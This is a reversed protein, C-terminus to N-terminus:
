VYLLEDRDSYNLLLRRDGRKCFEVVLEDLNNQLEGAEEREITLLSLSTLKEQWYTGIQLCINTNRCVVGVITPPAIAGGSAIGTHSSM